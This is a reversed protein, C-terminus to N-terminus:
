GNVISSAGFVHAWPSPLALTGTCDPLADSPPLTPLLGDSFPRFVPKPSQPFRGRSSLCHAPCGATSLGSPRPAPACQLPVQLLEPHALWHGSSHARPPAEAGEKQNAYM